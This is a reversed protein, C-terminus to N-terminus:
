FIQIQGTMVAYAFFVVCCLVALCIGVLGLILFIRGWKPKSKEPPSMPLSPPSQGSPKARRFKEHVEQPPPTDKVWERGDFRYWHGSKVGIQWHAGESDSIVLANVEAEYSEPNIEGGQYKTKLEEYIKRAQDFNM